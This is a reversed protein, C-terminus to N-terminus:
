KQYKKHREAVKQPQPMKVPWEVAEIPDLDKAEGETSTDVTPPIFHAELELVRLIRQVLELTPNALASEIRSINAQKTGVRRALESQSWGRQIRGRIMADGLAFQLKLEEL